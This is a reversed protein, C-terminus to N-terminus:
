PAGKAVAETTAGPIQAPTQIPNCGALHAQYEDLRILRHCRICELTKMEMRVNRNRFQRGM